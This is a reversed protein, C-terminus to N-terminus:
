FWDTRTGGVNRPSLRLLFCRSRFNARTNDEKQTFSDARESFSRFFQRKQLILPCDDRSSVRQPEFRTRAISCELILLYIFKRPPVSEPRNPSLHYVLDGESIYLDFLVAHLLVFSIRGYQKCLHTM